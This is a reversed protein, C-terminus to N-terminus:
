ASQSYYKGDKFIIKGSKVNSDLFKELEDAAIGTKSSIEEIVHYSECALLVINHMMANMNTVFASEKSALQRYNTSVEHLKALLDNLWNTLDKDTFKLESPSIIDINAPMFNVCLWHLKELSKFLLETDAFTSFLGGGIDEAEGIDESVFTIDSDAKLNKLYENMSQEVHEKPHGIVEFSVQALVAGKRIAKAIDSEEM